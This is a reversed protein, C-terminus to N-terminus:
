IQGCEIAEEIWPILEDLVDEIPTEAVFGLLDRAKSV